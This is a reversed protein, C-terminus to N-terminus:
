LVPTVTVRVKIRQGPDRDTRTVYEQGNYRYHVDYGIIREETHRTRYTRCRDEYTSYSHSPGRTMEQGISAGAITGAVTEIKRGDGGGFRNGIVGGVVGGLVMGGLDSGGRAEHVVEEQWCEREPRSTEIIHTVPVVSIVKAYDYHPGEHRHREHGKAKGATAAGSFLLSAALLLATARTNTKM